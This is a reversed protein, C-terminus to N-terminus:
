WMVRKNMDKRIKYSEEADSLITTDVEQLIIDENNHELRSLAGMFPVSIQSRGLLNGREKKYTFVGAANCYALIIDNEYARATCLANVLRIDASRDYTIGIGADELMWYSPCLVIEVGQLLMRRFIEPFFLDWCIIMGMTGYETHFVTIENGPTILDQETHWLNVKRYTAKLAGSSDIYHTTNYWGHKRNEAWSGPVISLSHREALHQFHSIFDDGHDTLEEITMLPGTICMEPFVVIDANQSQAEKIYYEMKKINKESSLRSIEMQVVAIHFKM